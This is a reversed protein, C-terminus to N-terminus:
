LELDDPGSAEDVGHVYEEWKIIFDDYMTDLIFTDGFETFITTCNYALEEEEDTSLKCAVVIALDFAFPLWKGTDNDLGLLDKEKPDVSHCHVNCRHIM